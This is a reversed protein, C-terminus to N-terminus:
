WRLDLALAIWVGSFVRKDVNSELEGFVLTATLLEKSAADALRLSELAVVPVSIPGLSPPPGPSSRADERTDVARSPVRDSSNTHAVAVGEAIDDSVELIERRAARAWMRMDRGWRQGMKDIWSRAVARGRREWPSAVSRLHSRCSGLLCGDSTIMAEEASGVDLWRQCRRQLAEHASVCGWEYEHYSHRTPSPVVCRFREIISM